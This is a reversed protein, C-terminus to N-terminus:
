IYKYNEIRNLYPSLPITVRLNLINFLLKSEVTMCDSTGQPLNDGVKNFFLDNKLKFIQKEFFTNNEWM